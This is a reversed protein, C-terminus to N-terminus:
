GSFINWSVAFIAWIPVLAAILRYYPNAIIAGLVAWGLVVGVILLVETKASGRM